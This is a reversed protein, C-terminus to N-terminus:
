RAAPLVHRAIIEVVPEHTGYNGGSLVVVLDLDPFLVIRQGGWGTAQVGDVPQGDVEFTILWWLYGYGDGHTEPVDAYKEHMIGALSSWPVTVSKGMSAAIWETSLIQQGHWRGDNLYLYGFKAADRPRLKLNGAAHITGSSM